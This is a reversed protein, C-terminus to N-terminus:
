MRACREVPASFRRAFFFSYNGDYGYAWLNGPEIFRRPAPWEMEDFKIEKSDVTFINKIPLGADGPNKWYTHWNPHNEFNLSIFEDNGSKFSQIGFRVPKEPISEDAGFVSFITLSFILYILIRM